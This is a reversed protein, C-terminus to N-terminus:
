AGSVTIMMRLAGQEWPVVEVAGFSLQGACAGTRACSCAAPAVTIEVVVKTSVMVALM